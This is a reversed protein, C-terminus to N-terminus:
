FKRQSVLGPDMHAQRIFQALVHMLSQHADEVVGYNDAAVHLSIEAIEAARGGSFGNLSLTRMGNSAAWELATVINASQGSSSIAILVDGPRAALSLPYAFIQDYAMDNAVATIMEVCASLSQIRPRLGTDAAVGKAHDCVLHNAIAASGGNGCSFVQAGSEVAANLMAGARELAARDVSALAKSVERAYSDLYATISPFKSGPFSM